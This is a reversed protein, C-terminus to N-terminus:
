AARTQERVAANGRYRRSADIMKAFADIPTLANGAQVDAQCLRGLEYATQQGREVSVDLFPAGAKMDEVGQWFEAPINHVIM